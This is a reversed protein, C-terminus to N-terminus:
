GRTSVCEGGSQTSFIAKLSLVSSPVINYLTYNISLIEGPDVIGPNITDGYVIRQLSSVQSLSLIKSGDTLLIEFITHSKNYDWWGMSGINSINISIITSSGSSLLQIGTISCLDNSPPNLLRLSEESVWTIRDITTYTSVLFVQIMALLMLGSAIVNSLGM